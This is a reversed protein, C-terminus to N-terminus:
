RDFNLDIEKGAVEDIDFIYVRDGSKFSVEVFAQSSKTSPNYYMKDVETQHESLSSQRKNYIVEKCDFEKPIKMVNQYILDNEVKFYSVKRLVYFVVLIGIVIIITSFIIFEKM